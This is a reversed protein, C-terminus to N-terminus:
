SLRKRRKLRYSLQTDEWTAVVRRSLALGTFAAAVGLAPAIWRLDLAWSLTIPIAVVLYAVAVPALEILFSSRARREDPLTAMANQRASMDVSWLPLRWALLGIVAVVIAGTAGAVVFAVTALVGSVPLPQLARAIGLRRLVKETFLSQIVWCSVFAALTVSAYLVQLDAADQYRDVAIDFFAFEVTAGAGMVALTTIGMWRFAPLDGLFSATSRLSTLLSEARGHGSSTGADILRRPVFMAVAGCGVVPIVLLWQLSIDLPDFVFPSVTAALLGTVQGVYLWRTLAPYVSTSQGATFVDGALAWIILPALFNMQDALLWALASPVAEDISTAYLVVVLAFVAGYGGALVKLVSLRAFRDVYKTQLGAVLLLGLGGMPWVIALAGPGSGSLLQSAAVADTLIGSLALAFFAFSLARRWRTRNRSRQSTDAGADRPTENGEIPRVDSGNSGTDAGTTTGADEVAASPRRRPRVLDGLLADLEDPEQSGRPSPTPLSGAGDLNPNSRRMTGLLDDLPDPDRSPAVRSETDDDSAHAGPPGGAGLNTPPAAEVDPGDVRRPRRALLDDLPDSGTPSSNDDSDAM